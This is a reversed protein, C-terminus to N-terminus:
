GETDFGLRLQPSPSNDDPDENWLPWSAAQRADDESVGQKLASDHVNM